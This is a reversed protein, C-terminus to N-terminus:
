DDNWTHSLNFHTHHLPSAWFMYAQEPFLPDPPYQGYVLRFIGHCEKTEGSTLVTGVRLGYDGGELDKDIWWKDMENSARCNIGNLIRRQIVL